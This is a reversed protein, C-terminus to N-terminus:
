NNGILDIRGNIALNTIEIDGNNFILSGGGSITKRVRTNYGNDGSGGIQADFSLDARKYTFTKTKMDVWIDSPSVSFELDEVGYHGPDTDNLLDVWESYYNNGSLLNAITNQITAFSM